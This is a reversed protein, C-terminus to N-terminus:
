VESPHKIELYAPRRATSHPPPNSYSWRLGALRLLRRFPVWYKPAYCFWKTWPLIYISSRPRSTSTTEFRLSYFTTLLGASNSGALAQKALILGCSPLFTGPIFFVHRVLRKRHPGRWILPFYNIQEWLKQQLYSQLLSYTLTKVWTLELAVLLILLILM